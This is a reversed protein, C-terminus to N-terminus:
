FVDALDKAPQAQVAFLGVLWGLMWLENDRANCWLLNWSGGGPASAILSQSSFGRKSLRRM